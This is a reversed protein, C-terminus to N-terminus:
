KTEGSLIDYTTMIGKGKIDCEIPESFKIDTVNKVREYVADSIKIEGPTAASEMRSVSRTAGM